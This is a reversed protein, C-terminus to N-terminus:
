KHHQDLAKRLELAVYIGIYGAGLILVESPTDTASLIEYVKEAVYHAVSPALTLGSGGFGYAHFVPTAHDTSYLPDWQLVPSGTFHRQGVIAQVDGHELAISAMTSLDPFTFDAANTM